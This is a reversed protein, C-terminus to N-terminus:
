RILGKANRTESEIKFTLRGFLAELLDIVEFVSILNEAFRQVVYSKFNDLQFEISETLFYKKDLGFNEAYELEGLQVSYLNAAKPIDSISLGLDKGNQIQVIDLGM